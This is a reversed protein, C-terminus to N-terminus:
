LNIEKKNKLRLFVEHFLVFFYVFFFNYIYSKNTNEQNLIRSSLFLVCALIRFFNISIIIIPITSKYKSIKTQILDTFFLLSFLFTHITLVELFNLELEFFSVVLANIAFLPIFLYLKNIKM